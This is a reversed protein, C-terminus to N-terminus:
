NESPMEIHDIVLVPISAKIPDLKLGLQEQVATFVDPWADPAGASWDTGIQLTFKYIGTLGTRDLVPAEMQSALIATISKSSANGVTFELGQRSGAGKVDAGPVTKPQDPDIKIEQLKSGSKALVLAYVSSEKTELHTKLKLRDALLTQLMHQKELKAQSDTLKALKEDTEPDSKAQINFYLDTTWQPGGSIPTDFGYAYQILRKIPFNTIDLTSAHPPNKVGARLANNTIGATQRISAIDFTLTPVYIPDTAAALQARAAPLILLVLAAFAAPIASRLPFRLTRLKRTPMTDVM